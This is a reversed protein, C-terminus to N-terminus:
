RDADLFLTAGVTARTLAVYLARQWEPDSMSSVPGGVVLAHVCQRGKARAVSEALLLGQTMVQEGEPTYRGTFRRISTVRAHACM